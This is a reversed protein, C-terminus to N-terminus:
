NNPNDLKCIGMQVSFQRLEPITVNEKGTQSSAFFPSVWQRSLFERCGALITAM